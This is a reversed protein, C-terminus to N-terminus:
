QGIINGFQLFHM